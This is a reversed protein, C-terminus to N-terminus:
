CAETRASVVLPGKKKHTFLRRNQEPSEESHDRLTAHSYHILLFAGQDM